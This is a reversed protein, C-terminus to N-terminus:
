NNASTGSPPRKAATAPALGAQASRARLRGASRGAPAVGARRWCGSSEAGWLRGLCRLLGIGQCPAPKGRPAAFCSAPPGHHPVGRYASGVGSRWWSAGTGRLLALPPGPRLASGQEDWPSATAPPTRGHRVVQPFTPSSTLLPPCRAEDARGGTPSVERSWAGGPGRLASVALVAASYGPLAAPRGSRSGPLTGPPLGAFCARCAL